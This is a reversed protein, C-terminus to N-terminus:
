RAGISATVLDVAKRLEAALRPEDVTGNQAVVIRVAAEDSSYTAEYLAAEATVMKAATVGPPLGDITTRNGQRVKDALTASNDRFTTQYAFLHYALGDDTVGRFHIKEVGAARMADADAPRALGNDVAQQITLVATTSFLAKTPNPLRDPGWPAATVSPSPQPSTRDMGVLFWWIGIGAVALAVLVLASKMVRGRASSQRQVSFVDQGNIPEQRVRDTRAPPSVDLDADGRAVRAAVITTADTDVPSDTVEKAVIQTVAGDGAPDVEKNGTPILVQTVDEVTDKAKAGPRAAKKAVTRPTPDRRVPVKTSGGSAEALIDDRRRRHDAASVEGRALLNDLERLEDNWDM